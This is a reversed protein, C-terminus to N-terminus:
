VPLHMQVKGTEIATFEANQNMYVTKANLEKISNIKMAPLADL